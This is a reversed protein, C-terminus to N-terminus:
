EPFKELVSLRWSHSTVVTCHRVRQTNFKVVPIGAPRTQTRTSLIHHTTSAALSMATDKDLRLWGIKSVREASCYCRLIVWFQLFQISMQTCCCRRRWCCQERERRCMLIDARIQAYVQHSVDGGRISLECEFKRKLRVCKVFLQLLPDYVALKPSSLAGRASATYLQVRRIYM